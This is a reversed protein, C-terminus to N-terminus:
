QAAGTTTTTSTSTTTGPAPPVYIQTTLSQAERGRTAVITLQDVNTISSTIVNASWTIDPYGRDAFDGQAGIDTPDQLLEVDNVKEEALRQLLVADEQRSQARSIAGIGAMAGAVAIAILVAAVMVEVLTFGTSKNNFRTSM